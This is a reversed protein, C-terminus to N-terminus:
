GDIPKLEAQLNHKEILQDVERKRKELRLENVELSEKWAAYKAESALCAGERVTLAQAQTALAAQQATLNAELQTCVDMRTDLAAQQEAVRQPSTAYEAAKAELAEERKALLRDSEALRAEEDRVRIIREANFDQQASKLSEEAALIQSSQLALKKDKEDLKSTRADLVNQQGTLHVLAKAIREVERKIHAAAEQQSAETQEITKTRASLVAKEDSVARELPRIAQERELVTAERLALEKVKAPIQSLQVALADLEENKDILANKRVDLDAELQQLEALTSM